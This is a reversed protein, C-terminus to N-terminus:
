PYIRYDDLMYLTGIATILSGLRSVAYAVIPYSITSCIGDADCSGAKCLYECSVPKRQRDKPAALETCRACVRQRLSRRGDCVECIMRGNQDDMGAEGLVSETSPSEVQQISSFVLPLPRDTGRSRRWLACANCLTGRWQPTDTEGCNTCRKDGKDTRAAFRPKTPITATSPGTTSIEKRRPHSRQTTRSTDNQQIM